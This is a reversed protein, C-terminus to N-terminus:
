EPNALFGTPTKGHTSLKLVHESTCHMISCTSLCDNQTHNILHTMKNAAHLDLVLTFTHHVKTYRHETISSTNNDTTQRYRTKM